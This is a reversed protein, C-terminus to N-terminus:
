PAASPTPHLLVEDRRPPLPRPREGRWAPRAAHAMQRKAERCLSCHLSRSFGPGRLVRAPLSRPHLRRPHARPLETPRARPVRTGRSDDASTGASASPGRMPIRRALQQGPFVSGDILQRRLRLGGLALVSVLSRRNARERKEKHSTRRSSPASQVPHPVRAVNCGAPPLAAAECLAHRGRFGTRKM